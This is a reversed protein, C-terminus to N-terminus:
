GSFCILLRFGQVRVAASITEINEAENYIPVIVVVDDRKTATIDNV